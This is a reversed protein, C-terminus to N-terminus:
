RMLQSASQARLTFVFKNFGFKSIKGAARRCSEWIGFHAKEGKNTIVCSHIDLDESFLWVTLEDKKRSSPASSPHKDHRRQKQNNYNLSSFEDECEVM